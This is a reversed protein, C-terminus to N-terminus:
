SAESGNLRMLDDGDLATEIEDGPIEVAPIPAGETDVADGLRSPRPFAEGCSFQRYVISDVVDTRLEARYRRLISYM